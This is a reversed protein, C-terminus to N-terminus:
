RRHAWRQATREVLGYTVSALAVSLVALVIVVPLFRGSFYPIGLAPMVLRLLMLHWLFLGYSILGLRRPVSSSLARVAGTSRGMVGPLLFAAASAIYLVHKAVSEWPGTSAFDYAGGLPTVAIIFLSGAVVLCTLPDAAAARTWRVLRPPNPHRSRVEILALGMGVAFWDLYGPLWYGAQDPLVDTTARFVTFGLGVVALLTLVRLQRRWADDLPRGRRGLATAGIIPLVLYFALETCLSWTQTLGESVGTGVYIQTATLHTLWTSPAVPRVEPLVLLTVTVVLWYLPLIRAARRVAYRRLSPRAAGDLATRVWPRYLLFGSLLFFLAVGIDFRSAVHGLGSTVVVGTAFAVHTVLVLLAAVARYGDLASFHSGGSVERRPSEVTGPSATDAMPVTTGAPEEVVSM